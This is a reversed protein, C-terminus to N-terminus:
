PKPGHYFPVALKKKRATCEICRILNNGQVDVGIGVKFTVGKCDCVAGANVGPFIIFDSM